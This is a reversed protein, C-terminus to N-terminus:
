SMPPHPIPANDFNRQLNDKSSMMTEPIICAQLSTFDM